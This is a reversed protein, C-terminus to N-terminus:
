RDSGAEHSGGEGIQLQNGDTKLTGENFVATPAIASFAIRVMCRRGTDVLGLTVEEIYAAPISVVRGDGFHLDISKIVEPGNTTM